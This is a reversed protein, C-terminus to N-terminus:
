HCLTEIENLQERRHHPLTANKIHLRFYTSKNLGYFVLKRLDLGSCNTFHSFLLNQSYEKSHFIILDFNNNCEMNPFLGPTPLKWKELFNSSNYCNIESNELICVSQNRFSVEMCTPNKLKLVQTLTVPSTNDDNTNNRNNPLTIRHIENATLVFM